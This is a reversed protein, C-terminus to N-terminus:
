FLADLFPLNMKEKLIRHLVESKGGYKRLKKIASVKYFDWDGKFKELSRTVNTRMLIDELTLIIRM